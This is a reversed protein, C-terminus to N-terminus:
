EDHTTFAPAYAAAPFGPWREFAAGPAPSIEFRLAADLKDLEEHITFLTLAMTYPGARLRVDRMTIRLQRTDGAVLDMSSAIMDTSVGLAPRGREDILEVAAHVLTVRGSAEITLMVEITAGPFITEIAAGDPAVSRVCASTFRAAGQKARPLLTLDVEGSASSAVGATYLRTIETATADAIVRGGSLLLARTCLSAVAALNHSVFLVTRGERQRVERMKGLCKDQFAQDGVALVEDVLLIDADLHAAVAFALRMMMGSSYRKIPLELFDEVGAFAVIEDFRRRIENRRMGIFAGNLFVNERGTLEPHFGTGVELLSGVRGFVDVEGTTPSTVGAIVKLLTSKGAGNRGVLGLIEGHSVECSVERLAWFRDAESKTRARGVWESVSEALTTAQRSSVNYAKGVNRVSLAPGRHESSM